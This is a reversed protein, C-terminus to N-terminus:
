ASRFDGWLMQIAALAALPATETRLVRPGLRLATFGHAAALEREDQELGGEPGILLDVGHGPRQLQELSCAGRHDLLLRCDAASASALSGPLSQPPDLAPLRNRGSQECAGVLVGRWHEMRRQLREGKLQVVSRGCSLPRIRTVGLEVAKQIAFDMREGRSIGLYLNLPLAAPPEEDGADLVRARVAGKSVQSLRASYDRGNGNFLRLAANEGLRLVSTLHRAPGAELIIETGSDLAQPTYVRPERM